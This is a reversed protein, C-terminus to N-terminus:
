VAPNGGAAAATRDADRDFRDFGHAEDEQLLQLYVDETENQGPRITQLTLEAEQIMKLIEIVRVTRLVLRVSSEMMELSSVLLVVVDVRRSLNPCYRASKLVMYAMRLNLVRM